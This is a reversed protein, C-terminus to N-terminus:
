ASVGQSILDKLRQAAELEPHTLPEEQFVTSFEEALGQLLAKEIDQREISDGRLSKLTTIKKLLAKEDARTAGALLPIDCDLLLSGHQLFSRQLRRQASGILKRDGVMLEYRSPSNFCPDKVWVPNEPADLAHTSSDALVADVGLGHMGRCLGSAIRRYTVLVSTSSFTEQDNSIIAYTLEKDHLVARGGTPRYVVDIGHRACFDLDAARDKKQHQGLSLTPCSWEYFRVLTQPQDQSELQRLFWEDIAM